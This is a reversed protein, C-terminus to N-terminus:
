CSWTQPSRAWWGPMASAHADRVRFIRHIGRPLPLPLVAAAPVRVIQARDSRYLGRRRQRRCAHRGAVLRGGTLRPDGHLRQDRGVLSQRFASGAGGGGCAHGVVCGGASGSRAARSIGAPAARVRARWPDRPANGVKLLRHTHACRRGYAPRSGPPLDQLVLTVPFRRELRIWDTTPEVYPLLKRETQERSIGRAIGQITARHIHWPYTDLWVWATHGVTMHRVM